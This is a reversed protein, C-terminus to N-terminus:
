SIRWGYTTNVYLLVLKKGNVNFVLNEELGQIKEGSGNVTFNTTAATGAVDIIEVSDGLLPGPPLTIILNLTPTVMLRDKAFAQYNSSVIKWGILTAAQAQASATAINSSQANIQSELSNVRPNINNYAAQLGDYAGQLTSVAAGNATGGIVVIAADTATQLQAVASATAGTIDKVGLSEGAITLAEALYMIQEATLTQSTLSLIKALLVDLEDNLTTYNPV